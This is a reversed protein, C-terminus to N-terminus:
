IRKLNSRRATSWITVKFIWPHIIVVPQWKTAGQNVRRWGMRSEARRVGNVAVYADRYIPATGANLVCVSSTDESSKFDMIRLRYGM